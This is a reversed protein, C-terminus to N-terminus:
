AGAQPAPPPVSPAAPKVNKRTSNPAHTPPATRAEVTRHKRLLGTLAPIPEDDDHELRDIIGLHTDITSRLSSAFRKRLGRLERIEESLTAARRHSADLIKEARLEATSLLVESEAVATQRLKEAMAQASVLTERLIKEGSALEDNRKELQRVGDRLQDNERVMKQYDDAVLKLFSEVEEPDLGSFRRSFEHNQVELPTIRM